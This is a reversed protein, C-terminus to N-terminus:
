IAITMKNSKVLESVFSRCSKVRDKIREIAEESRNFEFIKIKKDDDIDTYTMKAKLEDYVDYIHEDVPLYNSYCHKRAENYIVEDPTDTLTYILKYKDKGTLWMYGQGQWYYDMNPIQTEFFPFTHTDWSNKVDIVCDSPLVDPTGKVFENEFLEENKFLFTYGLMKEVFAISEDETAHGKYTYKTTVNRRRDFFSKQGKLWDKVYTQAGKSLKGEERDKKSRPLSIIHGIASCRCKFLM